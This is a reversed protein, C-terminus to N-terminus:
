SCSRDFALPLKGTLVPRLLQVHAPWVDGRLLKWFSPRLSAYAVSVHLDESRIHVDGIFVTPVPLLVIDVSAAEATFGTAATFAELVHATLAESNRHLLYVGGALCVFVLLLVALMVRAVLRLRRSPM